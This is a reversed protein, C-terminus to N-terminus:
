EGDLQITYSCLYKSTDQILQFMDTKADDQAEDNDPEGDADADADADEMDADADADADAEADADADADKGQDRQAAARSERLQLQRQRPAVQDADEMDVGEDDLGGKAEISERVEIADGVM